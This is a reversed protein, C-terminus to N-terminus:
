DKGARFEYDVVGSISQRGRNETIIFLGICKSFHSIKGILFSVMSNCCCSPNNNSIPRVLWTNNRRIFIEWFLNVESSGQVGFIVASVPADLVVASDVLAAAV